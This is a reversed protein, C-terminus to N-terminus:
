AITDQWDTIHREMGIYGKFNIFHNPNWDPFIVVSVRWMGGISKAATIADQETDHYSWRFDNSAIYIQGADQQCFARWKELEAQNHPAYICESNM